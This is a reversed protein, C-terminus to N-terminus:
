SAGKKEKLKSLFRDASVVVREHRGKGIIEQEDSATVIFVLRRGDVEDLVAEARVEMGPPTAATHSAEIKVGLSTNGSGLFGKVCHVAAAEMLAIMAPTALVEIEGSGMTVATNASTVTMKSHGKMGTQLNKEQDM